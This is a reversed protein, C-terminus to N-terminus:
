SHAVPPLQPLLVKVINTWNGGEGGEGGGGGLIFNGGFVYVSKVQIQMKQGLNM